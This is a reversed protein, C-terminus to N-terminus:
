GAAIIGVLGLIAFVVSLVLTCVLLGIVIFTVKVWRHEKLTLFMVSIVDVTFFFQLVALLVTVVKPYMEAKLAQRLYSFVYPAGGLVLILWGGVASIVAASGFMFIFFPVPILAFLTSAAVLLGGVLFFPILAYKVLVSANLLMHRNEPKCFKVAAIINAIGFVLPLCILYSSAATEWKSWVALYVPILYVSIVYLLPVIYFAHFGENQEQRDSVESTQQSDDTIEPNHDQESEIYEKM